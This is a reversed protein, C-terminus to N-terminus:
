REGARERGAKAVRGELLEQQGRVALAGARWIGGTFCVGLVRHSLPRYRVKQTLREERRLIKVGRYGERRL